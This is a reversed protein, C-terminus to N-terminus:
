FDIFNDEMKIEFRTIVEEKISLHGDVFVCRIVVTFVKNNNEYCM